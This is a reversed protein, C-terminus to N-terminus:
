GLFPTGHNYVSASVVACVFTAQPLPIVTVAGSAIAADVQSDTTLHTVAAASTFLLVVPEWLVNFDAGSSAIGVLHDHGLVGQSGPAGYLTPNVSQALGVIAPGHDPCNEVHGLADVRDQCNLTGLWSADATPYVPLYLPAVNHTTAHVHGATGMPTSLYVLTGTVDNYAPEVVTRGVTVEGSPVAGAMAASPAVLVGVAALATLAFVMSTRKMWFGGQGTAVETAAGM